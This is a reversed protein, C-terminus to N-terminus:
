NLKAAKQKDNLGWLLDLTERPDKLPMKMTPWSNPPEIIEVKIRAQRQGNVRSCKIWLGRLDQGNPLQALLNEATTPTLELFIERKLKVSWAHLYGKWRKPHGKKCGECEENAQFCPQSRHGDWHTWVGWLRNSAIHVITPEDGQVRIIPRAPGPKPPTDQRNLDEGMVFEKKFPHFGSTAIAV